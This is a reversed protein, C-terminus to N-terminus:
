RSWERGEAPPNVLAAALWSAYETAPVYGGREDVPSGDPLLVISQPTAKLHLMEAAAGDRGINLKLCVYKRSLDVVEADNLTRAEFM